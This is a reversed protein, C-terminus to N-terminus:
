LIMNKDNITCTFGFVTLAVGQYSVNLINTNSIEATNLLDCIVPYFPM